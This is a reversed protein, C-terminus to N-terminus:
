KKTFDNLAVFVTRTFVYHKNNMEAQSAKPYTYRVRVYSLLDKNVGLVVLSKKDEEKQKFDISAQLVQYPVSRWRFNRQTIKSIKVDSYLGSDQMTKIENLHKEMLGEEQSLIELDESIGLDQNNYVFVTAVIKGDTYVRTFGAGKQNKERNAVKEVSKLGAIEQPLVEMANEQTESILLQVKETLTKEPEPPIDLVNLPEQVACSSILFILCFSKLIRKMDSRKIKGRGKLFNILTKNFLHKNKERLTNGVGM